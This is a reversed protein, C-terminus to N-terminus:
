ECTPRRTASNSSSNRPSEHDSGDSATVYQQQQQQQQQPSGSIHVARQQQQQQQQLSNTSSSVHLDRDLLQQHQEHQWSGSGAGTGATTTTGATTAEGSYVGATADTTDNIFVCIVSGAVVHYGTDYSHATSVNCSWLLCDCAAPTRRALAVTRILTVNSCLYLIIRYHM